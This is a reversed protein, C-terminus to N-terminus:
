WLLFDEKQIKVENEVTEGVSKILLGVDELCKVIKMIDDLEANCFILTAM